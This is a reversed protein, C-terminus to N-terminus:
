KVAVVRIFHRATDRTTVVSSFGATALDAEIEAPTYTHMGEIIAEWKADTPKAGDSENVIVFRGGPKLVRLVQRFNDIIDPWFYITEFATVLDFSCDEFPLCAVNGEVVECRGSWIEKSNYQRSKAVSLPSYDVGTVHKCRELLRAINAGGGCGIDLAKEDSGVPLDKLAWEALIAHHGANMRKVMYRGFLGSPRRTNGYFKSKLSM